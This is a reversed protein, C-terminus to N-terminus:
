NQFLVGKPKPANQEKELWKYATNIKIGLTRAVEKWNGGNLYAETVRKRDSASIKNYIRPM